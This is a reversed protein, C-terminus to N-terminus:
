RGVPFHLLYHLSTAVVDSKGCKVPMRTYFPGNAVTTDTFFWAFLINQQVARGRGGALVSPVIKGSKLFFVIEKNEPMKEIEFNKNCKNLLLWVVWSLFDEFHFWQFYLLWFAFFGEVLKRPPLINRHESCNEVFIRGM